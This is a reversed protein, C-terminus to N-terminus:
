RWPFEEPLPRGKVQSRVTSCFERVLRKVPQTESGLVKYLLGCGNPLRSIGAATSSRGDIFAETADYIADAHEAPTLLVVNAFVDFGNM